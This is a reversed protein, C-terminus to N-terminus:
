PLYRVNGFQEPRDYIDEGPDNWEAFGTEAVFMMELTTARDEIEDALQVLEAPPLRFVLDRIENKTLVVGMQNM